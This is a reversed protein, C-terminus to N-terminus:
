RRPNVPIGARSLHAMLGMYFFDLDARSNRKEFHDLCTVAWHPRSLFIQIEVGAAINQFDIIDGLCYPTMM